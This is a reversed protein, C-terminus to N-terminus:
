DGVAANTDETDPSLNKPEPIQRFVRSRRPAQAEDDGRAAAWTREWPGAPSLLGSCKKTAVWSRPSLAAMSLTGPPAEM